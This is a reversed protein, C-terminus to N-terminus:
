FTLAEHLPMQLLRAGLLPLLLEPSEPLPGLPLEQPELRGGAPCPLTRQVCLVPHSLSSLTLSDRSSLGYTIVCEAKLNSLALPPCTGPALLIQCAACHSEWWTCGDETLILLEWRRKAIEAAEAACVGPPLWRIWRRPCSFIVSKSDM